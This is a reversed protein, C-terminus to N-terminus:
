VPLKATDLAMAASLRDIQEKDTNALMRSVRHMYGVPYKYMLKKFPTRWNSGLEFALSAEIMATQLELLQEPKALNLQRIYKM